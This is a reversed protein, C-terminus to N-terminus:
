RIFSASPFSLGFTYLAPHPVPPPFFYPDFHGPQSSHSWFLKAPTYDYVPVAPFFLTAPLLPFATPRFLGAGASTLLTSTYPPAPPLPLCLSLLFCSFLIYKDAPTRFAYGYFSLFVDTLPWLPPRPPSRGGVYRQFYSLSLVL